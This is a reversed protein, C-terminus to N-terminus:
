RRPAMLRLTAREAEFEWNAGADSNGQSSPLDNAPKIKPLRENVAMNRRSSDGELNFPQFTSAFTEGNDGVIKYHDWDMPHDIGFFPIVVHRTFREVAVNSESNSPFGEFLFFQRRQDKRNAQDFFVNGQVRASPFNWRIVNALSVESIELIHRIAKSQLLADQSYFFRDGDRLRVFQNSVIAHILPGVSSGPLHDEALAGVFLDVNDISGFLQQLQFQINADSSIQSFNTLSSLGYVKRMRNYNPLGHDRGRQIDLAALDLGGAGPPGFLNNRIGDVLLLDTEQARQAALGRLVDQVISPHDKFLSPNFFAEDISLSTTRGRQDVLLLRESIQSHGFRFVAHAFSNTITANVTPDYIASGADPAWDSGLVAPLYEGYTIAQIEAGVIRRAVQYVQEDTLRPYLHGIRTALRNHERVFLVHVATLGVTENAREDGALFLRSGLRLPDDNRLGYTNVPLLLGDASTKLKGGSFTRLANARIEDSGYVMSADLYSTVSNIVERNNPRFTGPRFGPLISNTGTAADYQSRHFPIPRPFFPDNPDEIPIGFEGTGGGFLADYELGNRTLDLDHTIFQGWQFAWDTLLRADTVSRNQAHLVNSITRPNPRQPAVIIQDGFGDVGLETFPFESGYGFRMQRTEAAGRREADATLNNFSGDITRFEIGDWIPGGSFLTRNELVEVTLRFQDNLSLDIM